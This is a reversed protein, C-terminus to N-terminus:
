KAERTASSTSKLAQFTIKADMLFIAKTMKVRPVIMSAPLQELVGSFITIVTVPGM